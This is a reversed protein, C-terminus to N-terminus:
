RALKCGVSYFLALLGFLSLAAVAAARLALRVPEAGFVHLAICFAAAPLGIMAAVVAHRVREDLAFGTAVPPTDRLKRWIWAGLFATGLLTSGHQLVQHLYIGRAVPTELIPFYGVHTLADWVLHTATGAFLSVLVWSWPTRPLGPPTWAALRGALRRPALAILPQKFILHFALYALLGAAICLLPAGPAEHTDERGLLPVFYWLDPITAGIALASPVARAGLMKAVPVVAAPHAFAYPLRAVRSYLVAIRLRGGRALAV